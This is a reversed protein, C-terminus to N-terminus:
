SIKTYGYSVTVTGGSTNSIGFVFTNNTTGVVSATSITGEAGVIQSPMSTLILPSGDGTYNWARQTGLVAVNDNTVHVTALYTLIGSPINGRVWLHYAGNVPVTFSYNNTGTTVSWTGTVKSVTNAAVYATTQVTADSFTINGTTINVTAINGGYTKLYAGVQTNGYYETQYIGYPWQIGPSSYAPPSATFNIAGNNITIGHDIYAAVNTNAYTTAALPTQTWITSPNPNTLTATGGTPSGYPTGVWTIQWSGYGSDSITDITWPGNGGQDVIWGVQPTPYDGQTLFLTNSTAGGWGVTWSSPVFASTCYYIYNSDIRIMGATDGASGLLSGPASGSIILNAVNATGSTTLNGDLVINDATVNGTFNANSFGSISPAPSSIFDGILDGPITLNGDTGFQWQYASGGTDTYINVAANAELSVSEAGIIDFNNADTDIVPTGPFALRGDTGFTWTKNSGALNSVFRVDTTAKFESTTDTIALRDTGNRKVYFNNEANVVMNYGSDVKLYGRETTGDNTFAISGSDSARAWLKGPLTLDGDADFIWEIFAEPGTTAGTQIAVAGTTDNFAVLAINGPEYEFESWGIYTAANNGTTAISILANAQSIM